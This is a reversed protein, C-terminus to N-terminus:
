FGGNWETINYKLFNQIYYNYKYIIINEIIDYEGSLMKFLYLIPKKAFPFECM